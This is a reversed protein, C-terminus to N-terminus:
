GTTLRPGRRPRPSREPLASAAIGAILEGPDVGVAAAIRILTSATPNNLGRELKGYYSLNVDAAHAVEEQTLGAEERAVRVRRGIQVFASAAPPM